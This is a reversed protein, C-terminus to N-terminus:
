WWKGIGGSEIGSVVGGGYYVVLVVIVVVRAAVDVRKSRERQFEEEGDGLGAAKRM